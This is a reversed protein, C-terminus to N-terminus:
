PTKTRHATRMAFAIWNFHKHLSMTFFFRSSCRFITQRTDGECLRSWARISCMRRNRLCWSCNRVTMSLTLIALFLLSWRVFCVMINARLTRENNMDLKNKTKSDSIPYNRICKCIDKLNTLWWVLLNIRIAPAEGEHWRPWRRRRRHRVRGAVTGGWPRQQRSHWQRPLLNLM